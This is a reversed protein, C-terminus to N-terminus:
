DSSGLLTSPLCHLNQDCAMSCPMQDPDASNAHVLTIEIFDQLLFCGLVFFMRNSISWALGPPKTLPMDSQQDPPQPSLGQLTQCCEKTAASLMRFSVLLIELVGKASNTVERTKM